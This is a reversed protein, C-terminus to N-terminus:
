NWVKNIKETLYEIKKTKTKKCVCLCNEKLKPTNKKKTINDSGQLNLFVEVIQTPSRM